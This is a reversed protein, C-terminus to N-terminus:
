CTLEALTLFTVWGGATIGTATLTGTQYQFQRTSEVYRVGIVVTGSGSFAGPDGKDGKPGPAAVSEWVFGTWMWSRNEVVYIDNIQPSNPFDIATM